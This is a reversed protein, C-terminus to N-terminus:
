CFLAASTLVEDVVVFTSQYAISPQRPRVKAREDSYMESDFGLYLSDPQRPETDTAAAGRLFSFYLEYDNIDRHGMADTRQGYDGPTLSPYLYADCVEISAAVAGADEPGSDTAETDGDAALVAAAVDEDPMEWAGGASLVWVTGDEAIRAEQKGAQTPGAGTDAGDTVVPGSGSAGAGAYEEKSVPEVSNWARLGAASFGATTSEGYGMDQFNLFSKPRTYLYDSVEAPLEERPTEALMAAWSAHDYVAAGENALENMRLFPQKTARLVDMFSVCSALPTRM